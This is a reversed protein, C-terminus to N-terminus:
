RPAGQRRRAVACSRLQQEELYIESLAHDFKFGLRQDRKWVVIGRALISGCRLHLPFGITVRADTEIMAGGAAIDILRAGHVNDETSLTAPLSVPFRAHKRAEPAIYNL